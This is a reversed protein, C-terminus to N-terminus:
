LTITGGRLIAIGAGILLLGVILALWWPQLVGVSAFGLSGLVVLLGVVILIIGVAKIIINSISM